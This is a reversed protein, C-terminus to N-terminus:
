DHVVVEAKSDEISDSAFLVKLMHATKSILTDLTEDITLNVTDYILKGEVVVFSISSKKDRNIFIVEGNTKHYYDFGENKWLKRTALDVYYKERSM